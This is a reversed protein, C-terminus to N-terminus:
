LEILEEPTYEFSINGKRLKFNGKFFPTNKVVYGEEIKALLEDVKETTWVEMEEEEINPIMSFDNTM